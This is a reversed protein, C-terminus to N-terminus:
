TARRRRLLLLGMAGAGLLGLSAPEPSVVQLGNIESTKNNGSLAYKIVLTGSNDATADFIVYNANEQFTGSATAPPATFADSGSAPSGTGTSISFTAGVANYRGNVGYLYLQYSGNDALGSLTVSGTNKTEIFGELLGNSPSTTSANYSDSSSFAVADTTSTGSSDVLNSMTGSTAKNGVTLVNWEPASLGDGTYAGQSGSFSPAAVGPSATNTGAFQINVVTGQAAGVGALTALAVAALTTAYCHRSVSPGKLSNNNCRQESHSCVTEDASAIHQPKDWCMPVAKPPLSKKSKM